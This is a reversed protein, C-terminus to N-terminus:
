KNLRAILAAFKVWKSRERKEGANFGISGALFIGVFFLLAAFIHIQTTM